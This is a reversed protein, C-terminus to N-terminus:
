QRGELEFVKEPVTFRGRALDFRYVDCNHLPSSWWVSEPADSLNVLLGKMAIAHTSLLLDGGDYRERLMALFEGTREVIHSLPEIGEPAPNRVFDSFFVRIEEPPDLLNTGEYPGCDIEMLREDTIVPVAGGTIIRATEAARVLPSTYVGKLAIGQAAFWAGATAAQARGVDNLPEDQRGQLVRAVNLATQGHRIIYIM